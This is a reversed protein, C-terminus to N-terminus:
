KACLDCMRVCFAVLRSHILMIQSPISGYKRVLVAASIAVAMDVSGHPSVWTDYNSRILEVEGVGLRVGVWTACM